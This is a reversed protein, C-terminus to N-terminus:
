QEGKEGLELGRGAIHTDIEFNLRVVVAKAFGMLNKRKAGM